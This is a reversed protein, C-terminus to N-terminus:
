FLIVLNVFAAIGELNSIGSESVNLSEVAEAESPSIKGDSNSDHGDEIVASLFNPDPINVYQAHSLVASM